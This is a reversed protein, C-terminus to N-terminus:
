QFGTAAADPTKPGSSLKVLPAPQFKPGSARDQRCEACGGLLIGVGFCGLMGVVPTKGMATGKLRPNEARQGGARNTRPLSGWGQLLGQPGNRFAAADYGSCGALDLRVKPWGAWGTLGGSCSLTM